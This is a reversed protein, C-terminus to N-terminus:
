RRAEVVYKWGHILENWQIALITVEGYVQHFAKEGISYKAEPRPPVLPKPPPAPRKELYEKMQPELSAALVKKEHAEKVLNTNEKLWAWFGTESAKPLRMFVVMLEEVWSRPLGGLLTELGRRIEDLETTLRAREVESLERWRETEKKLKAHREKIRGLETRAVTLEGTIQEFYERLEPTQQITEGVYRELEKAGAEEVPITRIGRRELEDFYLRQNESYSLTSDLSDLAEVAESPDTGQGIALKEGIKRLMGRQLEFPMRKEPMAM